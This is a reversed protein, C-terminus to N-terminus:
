QAPPTPFLLYLAALCMEDLTEEGLYVDAPADKGQEVLAQAVGPNSKSNNYVCRMHLKDGSRVVPLAEPAADYFYFRQWNFDWAPTHLLCADEADAPRTQPACVAWMADAGAGAAAALCQQCPAPAAAVAAGCKAIACAVLDEGLKGACAGDVCAGLGAKVDASCLGEIEGRELWIRMDKGVYHMHSAIGYVRLGGIAGGGFNPVTWVMKEVHDTAGAPIKFTAKGDDGDGPQLGDGGKMSGPFNGILMSTATWAPRGEHLELEVTTADSIAEGLPHYHMQMVLRSGKKVPLGANAPLEAPVGGPAWAAILQGNVGPGGFCPYYGQAGAKTAASGSEDVFLLAHHAVRADGARFHIGRVWADDTLKPDLVFCIFQDKSGSTVFPKEPKISRDVRALKDVDVARAAPATAPDGEPAGAGVWAALMARDAAGVRLDHQWPAPPTCEATDQAGWPPMRGSEIAGLLVQGMGRATEYDDLDFSAIGDARHCGLCARALLPRVDKHWTPAGGGGGGVGSDTAAADAGAGGGAGGAVSSDTGCGALVLAAALALTSRRTTTNM